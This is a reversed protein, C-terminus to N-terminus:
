SNLTENFNHLPSVIFQKLLIKIIHWKLLVNSIIFDKDAIVYFFYIYIYVCVCVCVCVCIYIYIYIFFFFMM